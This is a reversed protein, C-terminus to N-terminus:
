GQVLSALGWLAAVLGVAAMVLSRAVPARVVDSGDEARPPKLVALLNGVFLAGGFALVLSPLLDEGLVLPTGTDEQALVASSYLRTRLIRSFGSL